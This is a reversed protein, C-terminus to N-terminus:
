SINIKYSKDNNFDGFALPTYNNDLGVDVQYIGSKM